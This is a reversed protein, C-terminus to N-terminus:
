APEKLFHNIPKRLKQSWSSLDHLYMGEISLFSKKLEYPKVDESLKLISDILGLSVESSYPYAKSLKRYLNLAKREEKKELLDKAIGLANDLNKNKKLVDNEKMSKILEKSHLSFYHNSKINEYYINFLRTEGFYNLLNMTMLVSESPLKSLDQIDKKVQSLLIKKANIDKGFKIECYVETLQIQRLIDEKYSENLSSIKIKNELYKFTKILKTSSEKNKIIFKRVDSLYICINAFWDKNYIQAYNIILSGIKIIVKKDNIILANKSIRLMADVNSPLMNMLDLMILKSKLLNNDKIYIDLLAEKAEFILPNKECFYKIDEEYTLFNKNEKLELFNFYPIDQFYKKQEENLAFGNGENEKIMELIKLRYNRSTKNTEISSLGWEIAKLLGCEEKIKKTESLLYFDSTAIKIKDSIIGKTYPKSIYINIGNTYTDLVTNKSNDNSMIVVSAENSLFHKEKLIKILTVGNLEERLHYDMFVVNYEKKSTLRFVEKKSSATDINKYGISNLIVKLMESASLTDDVILIPLEFNKNM